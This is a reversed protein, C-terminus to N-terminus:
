ERCMKDILPYYEWAVGFWECEGPGVNINVSAFSNNELHGPTRCGPVKMYLQVTNMGLVKYDLYSLLNSASHLRCFAPMKALEKLQKSFKLEDSLDVNTGFRISKTPIQNAAAEAEAEIAAVAARKRKQPRQDGNPQQTTQNPKVNRLKETEEKLSHRFSEAQYQGYRIVSTYSKASFCSWTPHGLNNLNADGPMKFQTRVEVEHDPDTSILTKTSFQALDIKLVNTLNRVLAIDSKYCFNQLEPARADKESDVYIIPVRDREEPKLEKKKNIVASPPKPPGCREDFVEIKQGNENKLNVKRRKCLDLVERASSSIPVKLDAMLNLVPLYSHDKEHGEEKKYPETATFLSSQHDPEKPHHNELSEAPDGLFTDM